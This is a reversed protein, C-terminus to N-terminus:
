RRRRGSRAARRSAPRIRQLGAPRLLPEESRHRRRRRRDEDGRRQRRGRGRARGRRDPRPQPQARAHLPLESLAQARLVAERGEGARDRAARGGDREPAPHLQAQRDGGPDGAEAVRGRGAAGAPAKRHLGERQPEAREPPPHRQQRRAHALLRRAAPRGADPHRHRPRQSPRGPDHDHRRPRAPDRGRWLAARDAPLCCLCGVHRRAGRRTRHIRRPPARVASYGYSRLTARNAPFRARIMPTALLREIAHAIAFRSASSPASSAKVKWPSRISACRARARTTPRSPAPSATRRGRRRPRRARRRRPPAPTPRALEVQEDM